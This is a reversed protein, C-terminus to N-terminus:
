NSPTGIKYTTRNQRIQLDPRSEIIVRREGNSLNESPYFAIAYSATLEEALADFIREFNSDTAAISIGGTRDSLGSAELPTTIRRGGRQLRSYSPLLVSFVSTEADNAREIVTSPSVVDGVPFGDTILIVARRPIRDRISRPSKKEIMRIAQDVADFAHTSLGDQDRKLRRFAKEIRDPKNTFDQTTKVDMAFSIVAFHSEYDALRKVFRDMAIRLRDLEQETMSGSVDLAFVLSLPRGSDRKRIPQFFDISRERGNEFVKFDGVSLGRVPAGHKDTVSVEFSALETEIRIEADNQQGSVSPTSWFALAASVAFLCILRLQFFTM